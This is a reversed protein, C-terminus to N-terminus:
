NPGMRDLLDQFRKESRLPDFLINNRLGLLARERLRYALELHDLAKEKEGMWAYTVAIDTQPGSMAGMRTSGFWDLKSQTEITDILKRADEYQGLKAYAVGIYPRFGVKKAVSLLSDNREDLYHNLMSCYASMPDSPPVNHDVVLTRLKTKNRTFFYFWMFNSSNTSKPNLRSSKMLSGEVKDFDGTEMYTWALFTFADANNPNLQVARQLYHLPTFPNLTVSKIIEALHMNTESLEPGHTIGRIAADLAKDYYQFRDVSDFSLATRLYSAGLM